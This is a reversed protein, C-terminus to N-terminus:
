EILMKPAYNKQRLFFNFIKAIEIALMFKGRYVGNESM